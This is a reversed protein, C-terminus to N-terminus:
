SIIGSSLVSVPFTIDHILLSVVVIYISTCCIRIYLVSPCSKNNNNNNNNSNDVDDDNM